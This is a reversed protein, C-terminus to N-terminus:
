GGIRIISQTRLRKGLTTVVARMMDRRTLTGAATSWLVDRALMHRTGEVVFKAHPAVSEDLWVRYSPQPGPAGHKLARLLDGGQAHVRFAPNAISGSGGTHIRISGHRRAYPNGFRDLDDQSHDRLSINQKAKDHLVRGAAAVAAQAAVREQVVLNNMALITFKLAGQDFSIV